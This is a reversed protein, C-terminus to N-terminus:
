NMLGLLGWDGIWLGWDGGGSVVGWDGSGVGKEVGWEFSRVGVDGTGGGVGWTGNEM